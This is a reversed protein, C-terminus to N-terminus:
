ARINGGLIDLVNKIISDSLDKIESDILTHTLSSITVSVAVSKMGKPVTDGQYIDFINVDKILDKDVNKIVKLLDQLVLDKDLLFAFDRIIPTFPSVLLPKKTYKNSKPLPINDIFIEFINIPYDIEFKSLVLPHLEGFFALQKKGLLLKGSKKPHYYSPLNGSDTVLNNIKFGTISLTNLVINKADWSTYNIQENNWSKELKKSALMGAAMNVQAGDIDYISSVEFLNINKNSKLINNRVLPFISALLSRRMYKYDDSIPNDIMLADYEFISFILDMQQSVFSMSYVEFMHNNALVQKILYETDYEKPTIKNYVSASVTLNTEPLKDFGHLRVIDAIIVGEDTCDNRYTPPTIIINNDIKVDYNLKALIDSVDSISLNLKTINNIFDLNLQMSQPYVIDKVVKKKGVISAGCLEKLLSIVYNAVNDIFAFDTTREFRYASDSNIELVRKALAININNFRAIELYIEKTNIDCATQIDGIIGALAGHIINDETELSVVPIVTDLYNFEKIKESIISINNENPEVLTTTLQIHNSSKKVFQYQKNKLDTFKLSDSIGTINIARLNNLSKANYAHMPQNFLLSCYNLIDVIKNISNIGCYQLSDQLWKPSPQSNDINELKYFSFTDSLNSSLVIPIDLENTKQIINNLDNDFLDKISGLGYAQLERAIGIVGLCDGRNPTISVDFVVDNLNLYNDLTTGINAYDFEMIAGHEDSLGLEKESLLMGYSDVGRIKAKKLTTDISEIYTGVPAYVVYIGNRANTAGCVIQLEKQTGNDVVIVSCVKLKDADPHPKTDKIYGISFQNYKMSYDIINDVEIGASILASSIDEVTVDKNIDIIKKLINLTFKM